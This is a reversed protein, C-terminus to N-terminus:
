GIIFDTFAAADRWAADDLRGDVVVPKAVKPVPIGPADKNTVVKGLNLPTAKGTDKGAGPAPIATGRVLCQCGVALILVVPLLLSLMSTKM